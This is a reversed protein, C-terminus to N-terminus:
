RKKQLMGNDYPSSAGDLEKNNEESNFKIELKMNNRSRNGSVFKMIVAQM